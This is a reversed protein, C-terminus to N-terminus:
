NTIKSIRELVVIIEKASEALQMKAEDANENIWEKLENLLIAKQSRKEKKDMLSLVANVKQHFKKPYYKEFDHATFQLFQEDNWGNKLYYEKMKELILKEDEGGDLIVWARNKYQPELHLFVFLNNFDRFKTEMESVSRASYTRLKNRLSPIFMPILYERILEEASSEELFLWSKWLDYDHFEYGLDELLQRREDPDDSVTAINSVPLKSGEAFNMSVKFLRADQLGGLYKTVINSHTSIFFQNNISKKEILSLLAKLAKPHIDNELEEILFIQNEAICLDVILGVLNAVGEGMSTLPIHELNKIILAAKKGNKSAISTIPFGIINRCADQYEDFGPQFHPNSLRDVKAFLNQFNGTVNNSTGSNIEESYQVVKRKSLYPYFLNDPEISPLGRYTYGGNPDARDSIRFYTNSKSLSLHVAKSFRASNKIPQFQPYRDFEEFFVEIRGESVNLTIDSVDFTPRQLLLISNLITSKGANNPGVLINIRKSFEILGTYEFGRINQLSVKTVWM